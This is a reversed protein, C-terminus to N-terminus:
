LRLCSQLMEWLSERRDLLALFHRNLATKPLGASFNFILLPAFGLGAICRFRTSRM